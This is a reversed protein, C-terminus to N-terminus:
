NIEDEKIVPCVKIREDYRKRIEETSATGTMGKKKITVEAAFDFLVARTCAKEKQEKIMIGM